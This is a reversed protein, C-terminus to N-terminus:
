GGAPPFGYSAARRMVDDAYNARADACAGYYACAARYYDRWSGGTAPAGM